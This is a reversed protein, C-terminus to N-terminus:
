EPRALVNDVYRVADPNPTPKMTEHWLRSLENRECATRVGIEFEFREGTMTDGNRPPWCRRM